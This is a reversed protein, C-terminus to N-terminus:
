RPAWEWDLALLDETKAFWPESSGEPNVLLIYPMTHISYAHPEQLELSSGPYKARTVKLGQCMQEVAWGIDHEEEETGFDEAPRYPDGSYEPPFYREGHPYQVVNDRTEKVLDAIKKDMARDAEQENEYEAAREAIYEEHEKTSWNFPKPAIEMYDGTAKRYPHDKFWKDLDFKTTGRKM